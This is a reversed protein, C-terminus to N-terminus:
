FSTLPVALMFASVVGKKPSDRVIQQTITIISNETGGTQFVISICIGIFCFASCISLKRVEDSPSIMIGPYLGAAYYVIIILPFYFSYYIFSRFNILSTNILNILLFSLGIYIFLAFADSLALIFGSLFSSTRNKYTTRFYLNFESLTM